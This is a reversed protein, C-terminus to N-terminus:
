RFVKNNRGSHTEDAGLWDKQNSVEEGLGKSAVGVGVPKEGGREFRTSPREFVNASVEWPKKLGKWNKKGSFRPWVTITNGQAERGSL